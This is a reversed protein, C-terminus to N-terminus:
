RSKPDTLDAIAAGQTGLRPGSPDRDRDSEARHASADAETDPIMSPEGPLGEESTFRGREDAVDAPGRGDKQDSM